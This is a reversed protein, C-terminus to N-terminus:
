GGYAASIVTVMDNDALPTRRHASATVLRSNVAVATGMAPIRRWKLLDEVTAVGAPLETANGNLIIKM